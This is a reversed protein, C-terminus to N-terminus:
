ERVYLQVLGSKLKTSRVLSFGKRLNTIKPDQDFWQEGWASPWAVVWVRREAGIRKGIGPADLEEGYFTGSAAASTKLAIDRRGAFEQDYSLFIHRQYSPVFVVADNPRTKAAVYAAVQRLDDIRGDKGREQQHFPLQCWFAAAVAAVGAATVVPRWPAARLAGLSRELGAAVLLPVGAFAFLLYRDVFLPKVLSLTFLAAVPLVVLPLAVATLGVTGTRRLPWLVALGALVAAATLVRADPGAFQVALLRLEEAGPEQIWSIQDGQRSSLVALPVVPVVATGAAAAWRRWAGPRSRASLVTAGHAALMLLAFEHLLATGAVAAAYGAWGRFSDREVANVLCWTALAAGAAVLAYSRGEQAYFSAFPTAAYLLGAWLGVRPRALRCGIAAILGATCTAGLVSPLRLMVEDARVALAAHVLLYYLGHVADLEGLLRWIEPVSRRAIQFTASEDRWMTGRDIGWMGIGLMVAAPVLVAGAAAFRSPPATSPAAPPPTDHDDPVYPSPPTSVHPNATRM